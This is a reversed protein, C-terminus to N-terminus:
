VCSSIDETKYRRIASKVIKMILEEYSMNCAEAMKCIDSRERQLGPLSNVELVYPIGDRLRFDVRGYDRISLAEYAKVATEEILKQQKRDLNAPIHYDTDNGYYTKVEFSYFRSFDDPIGSFDVEQIPLVLTDSGNGIIGVSFERGEIYETLMIPPNYLSLEKKVIKILSNMNNVLSDEHIGRSSGEDHPKVLIPFSIDLNKVEEINYVYNFNPVPVGSERLIKSTYIKDYALAHGLPSSGTYPIGAYELIAPLQTIRMNGRIGNCLNFVLDINENKLKSVINDELTMDMCNSRKSLVEKIEEVTKKKQKDEMLGEEVPLFKTRSRDTIIALKM